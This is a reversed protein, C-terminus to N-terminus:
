PYWINWVISIPTERFIDGNLSENFDRLMLGLEEEANRCRRVDVSLPIYSHATIKSPITLLTSLDKIEAHRSHQTKNKSKGTERQSPLQMLISEHSM